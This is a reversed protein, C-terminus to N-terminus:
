CSMVELGISLMLHLSLETLKLRTVEGLKKGLRSKDVVRLQECLVVSPERIGSDGPTLLLHTPLYPKRKSSTLPCILTTPSFQNGKENQIILAPRTGSQESGVSGDLRVLYIEGRKIHQKLESM